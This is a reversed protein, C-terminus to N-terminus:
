MRMSGDSCALISLIAIHALFVASSVFTHMIVQLVCNARGSVCSRMSKGEVAERKRGAHSDCQSSTKVGADHQLATHGCTSQVASVDVAQLIM